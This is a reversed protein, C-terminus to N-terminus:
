DNTVEKKKRGRKQEGTSEEPFDLLIEPPEPMNELDCPHGNAILFKIVESDSTEFFGKEDPNAKSFEAIVRSEKPNWVTGNGYFKM